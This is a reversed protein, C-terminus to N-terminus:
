PLYDITLEAGSFYDQDRQYLARYGTTGSEPGISFALSRGSRWGERDVIEQVISAIEPTSYWRGKQWPEMSWLVTASTRPRSQWDSLNSVPSAYDQDFGVIRAACTSSLDQSAPLKIWASVIQTGQPINVNSFWFTSHSEKGNYVGVYSVKTSMYFYTGYVLSDATTSTIRTVFREPEIGGEVHILGTQTEIDNGGPGIATLSV